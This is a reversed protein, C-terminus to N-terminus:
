HEREDQEASAAVLLSSVFVGLLAGLSLAPLLWWWPIM